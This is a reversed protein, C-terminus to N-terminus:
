GISDIMNGGGKMKQAKWLEDLDENSLFGNPFSYTISDMTLSSYKSRIATLYMVAKGPNTTLYALFAVAQWSVKKFMVSARKDILQYLFFEKLKNDPEPKSEMLFHMFVKTTQESMPHQKKNFFLKLWEEM